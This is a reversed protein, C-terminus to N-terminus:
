YNYHPVEDLYRMINLIFYIRSIDIILAFLIPILEIEHAININNTNNVAGENECFLNESLPNKLSLNLPS